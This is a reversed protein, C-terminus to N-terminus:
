ENPDDIFGYNLQTTKSKSSSTSRTNLTIKKLIELEFKSPNNRYEEIKSWVVSLDRMNEEVFEKDYKVRQLNFHSLYWYKINSVANNINIEEIWQNIEDLGVNTLTPSYINSYLYRKNDTEIIVGKMCNDDFSARFEEQSDYLAFQCEFYDCEKLGCVDLQGQIQYYYQLPIEGGSEIKRKFPCKIELMIGYDTIGDPSAGFFRHKPHPILGFEHVIVNSHLLSYINNAIPEFMNGWQFFPNNFSSNSEDDLKVKKKIIDNQTGFKGQGLAQAFDSATILNKRVNYWTESKQEIKPIDLLKRVIDRNNQLERMRNLIDNKTYKGGCDSLIYNINFRHKLCLNDLDM